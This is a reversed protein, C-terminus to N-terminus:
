KIIIVSKIVPVMSNKLKIRAFYIGGELPSLKVSCVAHGESVKYVCTGSLSYVEVEEIPNNLYGSMIAFLGYSPNPYVMVSSQEPIEETGTITTDSVRMIYSTYPWGVNPQYHGVLVAGNKNDQLLSKLPYGPNLHLSSITDGQNNLFLVDAFDHAVIFGGDTREALGVYWADANQFEKRYILNGLSDFKFIASNPNSPNTYRPAYYQGCYINGDSSQLVSSFGNYITDPYEHYWNITGTSDFSFLFSASTDINPGTTIIYAGAVIYENINSQLIDLGTGNKHIQFYNKWIFNGSTDIKAAYLKVTTSSSSEGSLILNGDNSLRTKLAVSIGGLGSDQVEWIKNFLSDLKVIYIQQPMGFFLQIGGALYIENKVVELSYIVNSGDMGNFRDNTYTFLENGLSDTKVLIFDGGNINHIGGAILYGGDSTQKVDYAMFEPISIFHFFDLQQAKLQFPFLLFFFLAIRM